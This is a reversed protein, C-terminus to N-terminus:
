AVNGEVGQDVAVEDHRTRHGTAWPEPQQLRDLGVRVPPEDFAALRLRRVGGMGVVSGDRRVLYFVGQPPEEACLKDLTAAVYEAIPQGLLAPLELGFTQQINADAWDLYAVNLETLVARDNRADAREFTITSQSM